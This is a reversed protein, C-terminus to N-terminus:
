LFTTAANFQKGTNQVKTHKWIFSSVLSSTIKNERRFGLCIKLQVSSAILISTHQNKRKRMKGSKEKKDCFSSFLHFFMFFIKFLMNPGAFSTHLVRRSTLMYLVVPSWKFVPFAWFELHNNNLTEWISRIDSGFIFKCFIEGCRQLSAIM